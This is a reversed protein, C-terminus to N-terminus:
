GEVLRAASAAAFTLGPTLDDTSQELVAEKGTFSQWRQIAVDIYAPSLELAYCARGSREAAIITTGSGSFPEYIAQGPSSNNEIPRQMCAVPKQTGHTTEADQDRSAISWLTTQKRDGAWHGTGGERVAYWCPEHQWHYHGRGLVLRDKAWIVQARISFGTTTLSEAVTTAHLAGHWVYAVDGPFLAWAERWDARDDNEVKGIRATNGLGARNRWAPDYEVGYPPDTVMLHPQVGGLLGSVVEPDTSDGCALRHRGLRWLDGSRAVPVLPVEPIAEPDTLGDTVETLFGALEGPDFGTLALDFGSADLEGLELRLMDTDWGASLALRNDALVYARRQTETLHGLEITPVEAMGLLRAALLRGHGAIVGRDGDVLVPNTFGFERISAAIQAVQADSHTRANRAYPVLGSVPALKYPPFAAASSAAPAAIPKSFSTM